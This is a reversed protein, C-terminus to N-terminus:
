KIVTRTKKLEEERLWAQEEEFTEIPKRYPPLPEGNAWTMYPKAYIQNQVNVTTNQSQEHANFGLGEGELRIGAELYRLVESPTEPEINRETLQRLAKASVLMGTKILKEKYKVLENLTKEQIRKMAQIHIDARIRPWAEESGHKEIARTSIGFEKSLQAYSVSTDSIYRAMVKLWLDNNEPLVTDM